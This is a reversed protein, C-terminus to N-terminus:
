PRPSFKLCFDYERAHTQPVYKPAERVLPQPVRNQVTYDIAPTKVAKKVHGWVQVELLARSGLFYSLCLFGLIMEQNLM